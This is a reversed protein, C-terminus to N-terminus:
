SGMMRGYARLSLLTKLTLEGRWWRQAEAWAAPFTGEWSWNPAWSGDADQHEIEWDLNREIEEELHIALACDPRPALKLPKASYGFWAEPDRSVIARGVQIMHRAVAARAEPPAEAARIFAECRAVSDPGLADCTIFDDVLRRTQDELLDKPVRDASRWLHALIEARPLVGVPWQSGDAHLAWRWHPAHPYAEADACVQRWASLAVDFAAVLWDVAAVVFEDTPPVELERLVHLAQVTCLVSSAPSWLDPELAHGFGGDSNRFATLALIAGERPRGEFEFEFRARELPRASTKLFSRARDYANSTLKLMPKRKRRVGRRVSFSLRRQASCFSDFHV